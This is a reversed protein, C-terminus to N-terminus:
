GYDPGSGELASQRNERSAGRLLRLPRRIRRAQWAFCFTNLAQSPRRLMPSVYSHAYLVADSEDAVMRRLSAGVRQCSEPVLNRAPLSRFPTSLRGAAIFNGRRLTETQFRNTVVPSLYGERPISMFNFPQIRRSWTGAIGNLIQWGSVRSGSIGRLGRLPAFILRRLLHCTQFM